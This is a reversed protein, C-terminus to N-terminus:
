VRLLWFPLLDLKLHLLNSINMLQTLLLTVFTLDRITIGLASM